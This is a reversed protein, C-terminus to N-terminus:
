HGPRAATRRARRRGGGARCEPACADAALAARPQHGAATRAQGRAHRPLDRAMTNVQTALDGLEDRRRVPIPTSSTARATACRAPASTTSRASCTRARLTPRSCDAAAAGVLHGLRAPAAAGRWAGTAWASSSATAMPAHQPELRWVAKTKRLRARGIALRPAAPAFGVAARARRHAGVVAPACWRRRVRSRPRRASTPPWGTSTTRWWRACCGDRLRRVARAAHRGRLDGHHGAGAAPVAGGPALAALSPLSPALARAGSPRRRAGEPACGPLPTARTACRRSAACRSRAQQRLRSVLIDVSRSFLQADIGRLENLIEDRTFVKGPKSAFLVLLEYEMGTLDLPQGQRRM